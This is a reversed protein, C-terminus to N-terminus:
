INTLQIPFLIDLLLFLVQLPGSTLSSLRSLETQGLFASPSSIHPTLFPSM